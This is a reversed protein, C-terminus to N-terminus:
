EPETAPKSLSAPEPEAAKGTTPLRVRRLLRALERQEDGSLDGMIEAQARYMGPLIQEILRRGKAELRVRVCRRDATCPHRTVYGDRELGDLLSTVTQKTVCAADALESAPLPQDPTRDLVALLVFRGLSIGASALHQEQLTRLADGVQRVTLYVECALPDLDPYRHRKAVLLDYRSRSDM